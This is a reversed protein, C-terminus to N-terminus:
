RSLSKWYSANPLEYKVKGQEREPRKKHINVKMNAFMPYHDSPFAVLMNTEVNKIFRRDQISCLIHDTTALRDSNICSNDLTGAKEMLDTKRGTKRLMHEIGGIPKRKCNRYAFRQQPNTQRKDKKWTISLNASYTAASYKRSMREDAMCKRM